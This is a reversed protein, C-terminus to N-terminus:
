DDEHNYMEMLRNHKIEELTGVLDAFSIQYNFSEKVDEIARNIADGLARQMVNHTPEISSIM